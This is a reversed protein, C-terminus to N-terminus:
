AARQIAFFITAAPTALSINTCAKGDVAVTSGHTMLVRQEFLFEAFKRQISTRELFPDTFRRIKIGEEQAEQRLAEQEFALDERSVTISCQPERDSLYKGCYDRTSAFLSSVAARYGAIEMTFEAM